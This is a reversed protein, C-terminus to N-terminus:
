STTGDPSDAEWQAGISRILAPYVGVYRFPKIAAMYLTGFLGNPKVLVAMQGHYGGSGDPVWGIHLVAQVTKNAMEAAWEDHTQYVSTFPRSRFAPGQPGERLDAPLRDRLTRVRTGVGEDPKDWGFLKGLKWRAAFLFRQVPSSASADNGSTFQRVLRDLEDPGGPTPLAWVDELTFDAAIEHIRWPRSTHATAPLKM